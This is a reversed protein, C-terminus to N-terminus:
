YERTPRKPKSTGVRECRLPPSRVGDKDHQALFLHRAKEFGRGAELGLGREAHGIARAQTDSTAASFTDSMGPDLGPVLSRM